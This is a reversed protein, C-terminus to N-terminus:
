LLLAAGDAALGELLGEIFGVPMGVENRGVAVGVEKGENRGVLGVAV